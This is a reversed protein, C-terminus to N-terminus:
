LYMKFGYSINLINFFVLYKCIRAMYYALVGEQGRFIYAYRDTFLLFATSFAIIILSKKKEKTLYNTM